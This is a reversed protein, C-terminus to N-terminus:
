GRAVTVTAHKAGAGSQWEITVKKGPTLSRIVGDPGLDTLDTDRLSTGHVRTLADGQRVGARYAPGDQDISTITPYMGPALEPVGISGPPGVHATGTSKGAVVARVVKQVDAIPVACQTLDDGGYNMGVVTGDDRVVAGGPEATRIDLAFRFGTPRSIMAAGTRTCPQQVSDVDVDVGTVPMDDGQDDLLTLADGVRASTGPRAVSAPHFGPVKLVAVDKTADFGAVTASMLEGGDVIVALEKGGAVRAYSTAVLGDKTMVLGDAELSPTVQVRVLGATLSADAPEWQRLFAPQEQPPAEGDNDGQSQTAPAEEHSSGVMPAAVAVVVGVVLAAGIGAVRRGRRLPPKVPPQEPVPAVPAPPGAYPPWAAEDPLPLADLEDSADWLPADNQPM